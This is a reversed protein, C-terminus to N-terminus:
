QWIEGNVRRSVEAVSPAPGPDAPRPTSDDVFASWQYSLGRLARRDSAQTARDHARGLAEVVVLRSEMPVDSLDADIVGDDGDRLCAAIRSLAWAAPSNATPGTVAKLVLEALAFHQAHDDLELTVKFRAHTERVDPEPPVRCDACLFAAVGLLFGWGWGSQAKPQRCGRCTRTARKCGECYGRAESQAISRMPCVACPHVEAPESGAAPAAPDLATKQTTM